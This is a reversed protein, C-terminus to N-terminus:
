GTSRRIARNSWPVALDNSLCESLAGVRGIAGVAGATGAADGRRMMRGGNSYAGVLGWCGGKLVIENMGGQKWRGLAGNVGVRLRAGEGMEARRAAHMALVGDCM